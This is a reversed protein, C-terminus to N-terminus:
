IPKGASRRWADRMLTNSPLSEDMVKRAQEAGSVPLDAAGLM